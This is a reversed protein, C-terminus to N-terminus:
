RGKGMHVQLKSPANRPRTDERVLWKADSLEALIKRHTSKRDLLRNEMIALLGDFFTHRLATVRGTCLWSHTPASTRTVLQHMYM